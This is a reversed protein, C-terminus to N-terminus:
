GSAPSGYSVTLSRVSMTGGASTAASPTTCKCTANPYGGGMELDFIVTFPGDLAENWVAAGVRSESVSFFEHGDLYWRVQGDGPDRRDIIVSYTHYGTQCGPCPLLGSTLGTDEHCPGQTGDANRVASLYGCHLTASHESLSNVDEMIDIEGHEPWQGQGLLWFGPWYGLGGSPDPQRISASIMMEGGAPATFTRTTRVRGSSWSVGQGLATIDLDGKGDLHVNDPSTTMDEIAGNGLTDKGTDYTWDAAPLSGGYPGHFDAAWAVSWNM